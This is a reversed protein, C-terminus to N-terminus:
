ANELASQLVKSSLPSLSGLRTRVIAPQAIVLAAASTRTATGAEELMHEFENAPIPLQSSSPSACDSFDLPCGITEFWEMASKRCAPDTSLLDIDLVFDACSIAQLASAIWIMLFVALTDKEAIFKEFLPEVVADSRKSMYRAFREFTEIHAFATPYSNRLKLAITLTKQRFYPSVQFSAWQDCPNRIQAIHVGGFARKIWASRMQSRSFCLVATRKTASAANLLGYLYIRLEDDADEPRLFFRDYSLAPYFRLNNSRVLASYEAYYSKEQIPHRM